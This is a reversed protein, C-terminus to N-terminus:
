DGYLELWHVPRWNRGHPASAVAFALAENVTTGGGIAQWEAGHADLLTVEFVHRSAPRGRGGPLVELQPRRVRVGLAESREQRGDTGAQRMSPADREPACAAM